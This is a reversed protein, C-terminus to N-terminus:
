RGMKRLEEIVADAYAQAGKENPHFCDGTWPKGGNLEFLYARIDNEKWFWITAPPGLPYSNSYLDSPHQIWTTDTDPPANGCPGQPSEHGGDRQFDDYVSAIQLRSQAEVM